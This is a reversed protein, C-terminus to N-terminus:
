AVGVCVEAQEGEPAGTFEFEITAEGGAPITVTESVSSGGNLTAEVTPTLSEGDGATITNTVTAEAVVVGPEPSRVAGLNVSPESAGVPGDESDDVPDPVEGDNDLDDQLNEERADTKDEAVINIFEFDRQDWERNPFKKDLRVAGSYSGTVTASGTLTKAEGTPVTTQAVTGLDDVTLRVQQDFGSCNRVEATATITSTERIGAQEPLEVSTIMADFSLGDCDITVM